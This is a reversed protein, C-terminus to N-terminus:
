EEHMALLLKEDYFAEDVNRPEIQSVFAM